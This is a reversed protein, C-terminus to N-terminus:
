LVPISRYVQYKLLIGLVIVILHLSGGFEGLPNRIQSRKETAVMTPM